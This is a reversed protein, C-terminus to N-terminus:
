DFLGPVDSLGITKGGCSRVFNLLDRLRRVINLANSDTQAYPSTGATVEVNHLMANLVIPTGLSTRRSKAIEDKAVDILKRSTGRTPRLWRPEVFTRMRRGVWPISELRSPQITVPVELITSRGPLEPCTADPHYPQTPASLFNIADGNPCPWRMYPTVSSEVIFGLHELLPISNTGIGFRGARFSTPQMQFADRFLTTLYSLKAEEISKSYQRQFVETVDPVFADPEAFEGHLHAGLEANSPLRRLLDVSREDRLVEPSLLYTPIAGFECFLPDLREGIGRYIGHFSLPKKTRWGPGKDCECDISVCLYLEPVSNTDFNRM